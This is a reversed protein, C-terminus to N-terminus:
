HNFTNYYSKRVHQTYWLCNSYYSSHYQRKKEWLLLYLTQLGICLSSTKVIQAFLKELHYLTCCFVWRYSSHYITFYVYWPLICVWKIYQPYTGM